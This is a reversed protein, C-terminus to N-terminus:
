RILVAKKLHTAGGAQLRVFYVGSAAPRGRDDTGQWLVTAAGAALHANWPTAVLRGRVDFIEVRALGGGDPVAVPINLVPNFPNPYPHGLAFHEPFDRNEDGVGSLGDFVSQAMAAAARLEAQSGAAAVAFPVHVPIEPGLSIPGMALVMSYDSPSPVATDFQSSTLFEWALSDPIDATPWIHTPNHIMRFACPDNTSLAVVAVRVSSSGDTAYIEGARVDALYGGANLIPEGIDADLYLGIYVDTLPQAATLAYDLIVFDDKGDETLAYTTQAVRVGLPQTALSDTFVCHTHQTDGQVFSMEQGHVIAFDYDYSADSLRDPGDALWLAGHFVHSPSGPPWQLGVGYTENQQADFFGIAGEDGVTLHISGADHTAYRMRPVRMVLSIATSDAAADSTLLLLSSTYLGPPQGNSTLEIAVTVFSDPWVLGVPEVIEAWLIDSKNAAVWAKDITAIDARSLAAAATKAVAKGGDNELLVYGLAYNGTNTIVLEVVATTEEFVDGAIMPPPAQLVAQAGEASLAVKGVLTPLQGTYVFATDVWSGLNLPKCAILIEALGEAPVVAWVTDAPAFPPTLPPVMVTAELDGSNVVTMAWYHVDGLEVSFFNHWAHEVTLNATGGSGNLAIVAQDLFDWPTSILLTDPSAGLDDPAFRILVQLSDSALLTVPFNPSVIQYCAGSALTASVAVAGEGPNRVVITTDSTAGVALCGFDLLVDDWTIAPLLGRGQMPLVPTGSGNGSVTASLASTALGGVTPLYAVQLAVSDGADVYWPAGETLLVFPSDVVASTVAFSADGLNRLWSTAVTTDGLDVSGFDLLGGAFSAMGSLGAGALAVASPGGADDHSLALEVAVPSPSTPAFSVRVVVSDWPAVHHEPGFDSWFVPDASALGTVSLTDEGVNRLRLFWDCTDGVAVAGFDHSEASLELSPGHVDLALSVPALPLSPDNSPILLTDRFAGRGNSLASIRLRLSDGPAASIGDLWVASFPTELGQPDGVTLLSSGANWTNLIVQRQSGTGAVAFVVSDQSAALQPHTVTLAVGLYRPAVGPDSCTIVIQGRYVNDALGTADVPVDITASSDPDLPVPTAPVDLWAVAGGRGDDEGMTLTVIADGLNTVTIPITATEGRDLAVATSDPGAHLLPRIVQVTGGAAALTQETGDSAIAVVQYDGREVGTVDWVFQQIGPAGLAGAGAIGQRDSGSPDAQYYLSVIVSDGQDPDSSNWAIVVEDHAVVPDAPQQMTLSPPTNAVNWTPNFSVPGVCVAGPNAQAAGWYNVEANLMPGTQNRVYVAHSDLRNHGPSSAVTGLDPVAIQNLVEIGVQSGTVTNERLRPLGEDVCYVGAGRNGVIRNGILDPQAQNSVYVGAFQNSRVDNNVIQPATAIGAEYEFVIGRMNSYVDNLQILTTSGGYGCRIGDEANSRVRNQAIDLIVPPQGSPATNWYIGDQNNRIDNDNVTTSSLPHAFVALGYGGCDHIDCHAVTCVGAPDVILELGTQQAGAVECHTVDPNGQWWLNTMAHKIEAYAIAGEDPSQNIRIGGWAGRQGFTAGFVAPSGATGTVDLGGQIVLEDAGSRDVALLLEGAGVLLRDGLSITVTGHMTYGGTGDPRVGGGSAAALAALSTYVTGGGPSVFQPKAARQVSPLSVLDVVDVASVRYYYTDGNLVGAHQYQASTWASEVIDGLLNPDASCYIIYHDIDPDGPATWALDVLGSGPTAILNQPMGPPTVDIHIPGLHVTESWNGVKDQARVHAYWIGTSLDPSTYATGPSLSTAYSEDPDTMPLQDWLVAYQATGSHADIAALFVIDVTGDASQVPHLQGIALPHSTTQLARVTDPPSTDLYITKWGHPGWNGAHDLARVALTHPGSTLGTATLQNVLTDVVADPAQPVAASALTFSYGAIGPPTSPATWNFSVADVAHWTSGPAPDFHHVAPAPPPRTEIRLEFHATPGWNGASDRAAVHFYSIGNEPYETVAGSNFPNSTLVTSPSKDLATSFRYIGSGTDTATFTFNATDVNSWVGSTHDAATIVPALPPSLDVRLRFNRQDGWNGLGDVAAVHAYYNATQDATFSITCASGMNTQEVPSSPWTDILWSYGAVGSKDYPKSWYVTIDTANAWVNPNSNPTAWVTPVPPGTTDRYIRFSKVGANHQWQGINNHSRVWVTNWGENDLDITFSVYEEYEDWAGDYPSSIDTWNGPNITDGVQYQMQDISGHPTWGKAGCNFWADSVVPDAPGSFWGAIPHTDLFDLDGNSDWDGWGIHGKTHQCIRNFQIGDMVRMICNVPDDNCAECNSNNYKAELWRHIVPEHCQYRPCKGEEEYEDTAGFLHLIEHAFVDKPTNLGDANPFPYVVCRSIDKRAFSRGSRYPHFLVLARRYQPYNNLMSRLMDDIWCGDGDYDQFGLSAVAAETWNTGGDSDNPILSDITATYYYHTSPNGHNSFSLSAASPARDVIWDCADATRSMMDSKNLRYLPVNSWSSNPGEVFVHLVFVKGTAVATFDNGAYDYDNWGKADKGADADETCVFDALRFRALVSDPEAKDPLSTRDLVMSQPPPPQPQHPQAVAPHPALSSAALVSAAFLCKVFFGWSWAQLGRSGDNAMM